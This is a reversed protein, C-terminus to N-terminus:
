CNKKKSFNCFKHENNSSFLNKQLPDSHSDATKSKSDILNVFLKM